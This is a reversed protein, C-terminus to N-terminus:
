VSTQSHPLVLEIRTGKGPESQVVCDGGLTQMREHVSDLGLHLTAPQWEAIPNFGIGRDEVAVRVRGQADTSVSVTAAEVKAHKLVNFLLERVSQYLLIAENSTITHQQTMQITVKLGERGMREALGHLATHLDGTDLGPPNLETMLTRCYTLVEQLADDIGSVEEKVRPDSVSQSMKSLKM